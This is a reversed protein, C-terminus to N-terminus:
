LDTITIKGLSVKGTKLFLGLSVLRESNYREGLYAAFDATEPEFSIRGNHLLKKMQDDLIDGKEDVPIANNPPVIFEKVKIEGDMGPVLTLSHGDTSKFSIQNGFDLTMQRLERFNGERETEANIAYLRAELNAKVSGGLETEIRSVKNLPLSWFGNDTLAMSCNTRLFYPDRTTKFRSNCFLDLDISYGDISPLSLLKIVEETFRKSSLVSEALEGEYLPLSTTSKHSIISRWSQVWREDKDEGILINIPEVKYHFQIDHSKNLPESYFVMRFQGKTQYKIPSLYNQLRYKAFDTAMANNTCLQGQGSCSVMDLYEFSEQSYVQFALGIMGLSVISKKVKNGDMKSGDMKSGSVKNGNCECALLLFDITIFSPSPGYLYFSENNLCHVVLQLINEIDFMGPMATHM